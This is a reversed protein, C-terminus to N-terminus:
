NCPKAHEDHLELGATKEFAKRTNNEEEENSRCWRRNDEEAIVQKALIKDRQSFHFHVIYDLHTVQAQCQRGRNTKTSKYLTSLWAM